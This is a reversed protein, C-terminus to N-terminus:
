LLDVRNTILDDYVVGGAQTAFNQELSSNSGAGRDGMLAIAGGQDTAQNQSSHLQSWPQAGGPLSTGVAGGSVSSNDIFNAIAITYFRNSIELCQNCAAQTNAQCLM